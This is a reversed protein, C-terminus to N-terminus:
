RRKRPYLFLPPYRSALPSLCVAIPLSQISYTWLCELWSTQVHESSTALSALQAFTKIKDPLLANTDAVYSNKGKYDMITQLGQWMRRTDASNSNFQSELKDRYQRKAQTIAKHLAYSFQKYKDM